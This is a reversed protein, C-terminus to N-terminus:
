RSRSLIERLTAGVSAADLSKRIYDDAGTLFVEKASQWTPSATAVVISASPAAGRLATIFEPMDDIAGGDIIILRYDEKSIQELAESGSVTDLEGLAQLEEGITKAWSSSLNDGIYLFTHSMPKPLWGSEYRLQCPLSLLQEM